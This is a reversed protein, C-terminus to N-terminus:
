KKCALKHKIIEKLELATFICFFHRVRRRGRRFSLSRVNFM